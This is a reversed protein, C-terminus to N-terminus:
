VVNRKRKSGRILKDIEEPSKAPGKGAHRDLFTQLNTRLVDRERVPNNLRESIVRDIGERVLNSISTDERRALEKLADIRNSDLYFNSRIKM